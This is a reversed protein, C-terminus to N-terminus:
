EDHTIEYEHGNVKMIEKDPYMELTIKVAQGAEKQTPVSAIGRSIDVNYKSSIKTIDNEKPFQNDNYRGITPYMVSDEKSSNDHYLGLFHGMEHLVVTTLDYGWGGDTAFTYYDYNLLIDAQDIRIYSSYQTGNIQTVALATSPLEAPWDYLKYVGYLGDNYSSLGTRPNLNENSTTFFNIKNETSEEWNDAALNIAETENADFDNSIKLNLPFSKTWKTPLNGSSYAASGGYTLDTDEPQKCGFLLIL